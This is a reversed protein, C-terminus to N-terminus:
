ESKGGLDTRCMEVEVARPCYQRPELEALESEYHEIEDHTHAIKLRLNELEARYVQLAQTKLFIIRAIQEKKTM